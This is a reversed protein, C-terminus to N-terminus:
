PRIRGRSPVLHANQEYLEACPVLAKYLNVLRPDPQGILKSNWLEYLEGRLCPHQREKSVLHLCAASCTNSLSCTAITTNYHAERQLSDLFDQYHCGMAGGVTEFLCLPVHKFGLCSPNDWNKRPYYLLQARCIEQDEGLGRNVPTAMNTSNYECIMRISDGPLVQIPNLHRVVNPKNPDFNEIRTLYNIVTGNRILEVTQNRGLKHMLSIVMTIKVEQNIRMINCKRPCGGVVPYSSIGPPIQFVTSDITAFGATHPRLASSFKLLMGSSDVYELGSPNSWLVQLVIQKTGNLGFYIGVDEHLCTIPFDPNYTTVLEQCPATTVKPCEFPRGSVRVIFKPDCAYITM